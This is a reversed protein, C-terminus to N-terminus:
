FLCIKNRSYDAPVPQMLVPVGERMSGETQNAPPVFFLLKKKEGRTGKSCRVSPPLIGKGWCSSDSRELLKNPGEWSSERGLRSLAKVRTVGGAESFLQRHLHSGQGVCTSVKLDQLYIKVTSVRESEESLEVRSISPFEALSTVINLKSNIIQSVGHRAGVLLAVYSERDQLQPLM